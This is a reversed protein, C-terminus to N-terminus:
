WPEFCDYNRQNVIQGDRFEFFVAFHARMSSGASLTGLPVNLVASWGMEVAVRAGQALVSYVEYNQEKLLLKGQEARKLLTTLDSRGGKPNLTNPLEIQVADPTFFRALAEGVAGSELAALYAHMTAINTQEETTM